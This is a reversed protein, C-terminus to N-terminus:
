ILFCGLVVIILDIDPNSATARINKLAQYLHNRVTNPSINLKEAIKQHSLGERKSLNFILRQQDPLQELSQELIEGYYESEIERTIEPPQSESSVDLIYERYKKDHSAKKLHDFALNRCMLYIYGDLDTVDELENIKKILKLFVDQSLDKAIEENKLFKIFFGVVKDRYNNFLIKPNVKNM